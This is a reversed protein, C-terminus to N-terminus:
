PAIGEDWDYTEPGDEGAKARAVLEQYEDSEGQVEHTFTKGEHSGTQKVMPCGTLARVMQDIVWTKHHAGDIPGYKLACGIARSIRDADPNVIMDDGRDDNTCL